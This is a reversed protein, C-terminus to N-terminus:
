LEASALMSGSTRAGGAVLVKGSSLLVATHGFRATAMSGTPSFTGTAPDVLEASAVASSTNADAGGAILLKGSPLLTATRLLRATAMGGVTTWGPDVLAAGRADTYLEIVRGTSRLWARAEAGGPSYARPATVRGRVVGASDALLVADQDQRLTAGAVEWEAVPGEGAAEVKM